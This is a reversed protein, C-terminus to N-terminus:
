TLYQAALGREIRSQMGIVSTCLCKAKGRRTENTVRNNEEETKAQLNCMTRSAWRVCADRGQDSLDNVARFFSMILLLTATLM